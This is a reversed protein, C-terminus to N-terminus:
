RVPATTSRPAKHTRPGEAESGLDGSRIASLLDHQPRKPRNAALRLRCDILELRAKWLYIWVHYFHTTIGVYRESPDGGFDLAPFCLATASHNRNRENDKNLRPNRFLWRARKGNLKGAHSAGTSDMGSSSNTRSIDSWSRDGGEGFHSFLFSVLVDHSDPM